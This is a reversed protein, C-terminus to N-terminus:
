YIVYKFRGSAAIEMALRGMGAGPVLVDLVTQQGNSDSSTGLNRLLMPLIGNIYTSNRSEEGGDGWDRGVHILLQPISIYSSMNSAGFESNLHFYPFSPQALIGLTLKPVCRLLLDFVVIENHEHYQPIQQSVTKWEAHVDSFLELMADVRDTESFINDLTAMTSGLTRRYADLSSDISSRIARADELQTGYFM